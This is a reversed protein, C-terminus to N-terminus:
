ASFRGRRGEGFTVLVLPVLLAGAITGGIHGAWGVPTRRAEAHSTITAITDNLGQKGLADPIDSGDGSIPTAAGINTAPAMAAVNAALTLFTGASAARSSPAAARAALLRQPPANACSNRSPSRCCVTM